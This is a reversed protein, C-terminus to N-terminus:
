IGQVSKSQELEQSNIQINLAEAKNPCPLLGFFLLQSKVVKLTVKNAKLLNTINELSTNVKVELRRINKDAFSAQTAWLYISYLKM